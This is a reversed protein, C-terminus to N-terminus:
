AKPMLNRILSFGKQSLISSHELIGLVITGLITGAISAGHKVVGWTTDKKAQSKRDEEEIKDQELRAEDMDRKHFHDLRSQEAEEAKHIMDLNKELAKQVTAYADTTPDLKVLVEELREKEEYLKDLDM